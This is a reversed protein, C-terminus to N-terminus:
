VTFLFDHTMPVIGYKAPLYFLADWDSTGPIWFNLKQLMVVPDPGLDADIYFAFDLNPDKQFM